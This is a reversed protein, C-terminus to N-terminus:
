RKKLVAKIRWDKREDANKVREKYLKILKKLCYKKAKDLSNFTKGKPRDYFRMDDKPYRAFKIRDQFAMCSIYRGFKKYCNVIAYDWYPDQEVRYYKRKPTKLM